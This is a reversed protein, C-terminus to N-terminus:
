DDNNGTSMDVDLDEQYGIDEEVPKLLLKSVLDEKDVYLVSPYQEVFTNWNSSPWMSLKTALSRAFVRRAPRTKDVYDRSLIGFTREQYELSFGSEVKPLCIRILYLLFKVSYHDKEGYQHYLIRCIYALFAVLLAYGKGADIRFFEIVVSKWGRDACVPILQVLCKSLIEEHVKVGISRLLVTATDETWANVYEAEPKEKSKKQM